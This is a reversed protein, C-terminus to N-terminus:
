LGEYRGKLVKVCFGGRLGSLIRVFGVRAVGLDSGSLM